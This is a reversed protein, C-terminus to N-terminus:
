SDNNNKRNARNRGSIKEMVVKEIFGSITQDSEAALKKVERVVDKKMQVTTKDSQKKVTKENNKM